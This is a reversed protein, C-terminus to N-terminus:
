SQCQHNKYKSIVLLFDTNTIGKIIGATEKTKPTINDTLIPKAQLQGPYLCNLFHKCFNLLSKPFFFFRETLPAKPCSSHLIEHLRTVRHQWTYPNFSSVSKQAREEGRLSLCHMPLLNNSNFPIPIPDSSPSLPTHFLSLALCNFMLQISPSPFLFSNLFSSISYNSSHYPSINSSTSFSFICLNTNKYQWEKCNLGPIISLNWTNVM